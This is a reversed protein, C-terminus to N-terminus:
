ATHAPVRDEKQSDHHEGKSLVAFRATRRGRQGMLTLVTPLQWSLTAQKWCTGCAERSSAWPGSAGARHEATDGSLHCFVAQLHGQATWGHVKVRGGAHSAPTEDRGGGPARSAPNLRQRPRPGRPQGSTTLDSIDLGRTLLSRIVPTESRRCHCRRIRLRT